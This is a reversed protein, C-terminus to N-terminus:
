LVHGMNRNPLTLDSFLLTECQSLPLPTLPSPPLLSICMPSYYQGYKRRFLWVPLLSTMLRRRSNRLILQGFFFIVNPRNCRFSIWGLPCTVKTVVATVVGPLTSAVSLLSKGDMLGRHQTLTDFLVRVGLPPSSSPPAVVVSM